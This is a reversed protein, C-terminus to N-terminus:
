SRTIRGRFHFRKERNFRSENPENQQDDDPEKDRKWFRNDQREQKNDQRWEQKEKRREFRRDAFKTCGELLLLWLVLIIIGAVAWKYV